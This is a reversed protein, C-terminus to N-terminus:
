RRWASQLAASYRGPANSSVHLHIRGSAHTNPATSFRQPYRRVAENCVTHLWGRLPVYQPGDSLPIWLAIGNTGSLLPIAQLGFEHLQDRLLLAGDSLAALTEADKSADRPQRGARDM